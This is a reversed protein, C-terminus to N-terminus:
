FRSKLNKNILKLEKDSCLLNVIHIFKIPKVEIKIKNNILTHIVNIGAAEM